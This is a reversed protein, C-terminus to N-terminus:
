RFDNIAFSYGILFASSFSHNNKKFSYNHINEHELIFSFTHKKLFTYKQVLSIETKIEPNLISKIGHRERNLTIFSKLNNYSAGLLFIFDDSSPGSHGGIFRGNYTFYDFRSKSYYNVYNPNGRFFKPNFTNSPRNTFYELGFIINYSKTNFFKKFGMIYALTHDWHARLDSFNMRNDDSALNLYVDLNDKPFNINIYGSLIEDWYDFGPTGINTYDLGKKSSGFLPEVVLKIADKFSWNNKLNTENRLYSFNGSLYTRHIGVTLQPNSYYKLNLKLGTFFLQNNNYSTYPIGIIQGNIGFNGIKVYRFTGFSYTEQSPSNSSLVISSHFGPSWWNNIFGYSIGLGKYHLVLQSQKMGMSTNQNKTHNSLYEFSKYAPDDSYISKEWNYSPNYQIGIRDIKYPEFEFFFWNTQMEFRFSNYSTMPTSLYLEGNNEFNSHGSLFGYGLNYSIKFRSRKILGNKGNQKEVFQSLQEEIKNLPITLSNPSISNQGVLFNFLGFTLFSLFINNILCM